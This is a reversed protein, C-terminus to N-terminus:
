LRNTTSRIMLEPALRIKTGEKGTFRNQLDLMLITLAKEGMEFRSQRVTTLPPNTYRSFEIDGYGIISINGPVSLGAEQFAQLVGFAIQDSAAFVATFYLRHALVYKMARYGDASSYNGSIILDPRLPIDSESLAKQYGELRDFLVQYKLNGTLHAIRTHGLQILHKTAIYGGHVNDVWICNAKVDPLSSEVLVLPIELGILKRIRNRDKIHNSFIILGDVRNLLKEYLQNQYSNSFILTFGAQNAFQLGNIVPAYDVDSFSTMIIGIAETKHNILSRAARNPYYGMERAVRVILERTSDKVIPKNNLARSIISQSYGVKAAIDKLTVM